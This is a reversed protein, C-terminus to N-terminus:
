AYEGTKQLVSDITAVANASQKIEKLYIKSDGWNWPLKECIM